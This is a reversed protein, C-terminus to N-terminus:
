SVERAELYRELDTRKVLRVGRGKASHRIVTSKLGNKFLKYLTPVKIGFEEEIEKPRLYKRSSYDNKM